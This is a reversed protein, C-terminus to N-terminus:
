AAPIAAALATPNVAGVAVRGDDLLIVNVLATSLLHGTGGPTTVVPASSLLGGLQGGLSPGRMIAVTTWDAGVTVTPNKAEPAISAPNATAGPDTKHRRTGNKGAAADSSTPRDGHDGFGSIPFLDAPNTVESVTSGPPPTFAFTSAAPTDFSISTFGIKVVPTADGKAEIRVELPLGTAADVAIVGASITSEAARPSVVLEYVPRGAVYGPTRVSVVTSPDVMALLDAAAKDPTMGPMEANPDTSTPDPTLSAHKVQQTTSDWSWLDNASHVWDTESQAGDIALRQHDPGDVWVHETNTGSLLDLLSRPVNAGLSGLSPLGLRVSSKVDGSFAMVKVASVKDLLEAPTLPPLVPVPDASAPLISPLGAALSVGGIIALSVLWRSRRLTIM